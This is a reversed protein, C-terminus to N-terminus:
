FEESEQNKKLFVTLFIGASFLVASLITYLADPRNFFWLAQIVTIMLIMAM